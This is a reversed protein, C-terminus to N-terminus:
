SSGFLPSMFCVIVKKKEVKIDTSLLARSRALAAIHVAMILFTSDIFPNITWLPAVAAGSPM